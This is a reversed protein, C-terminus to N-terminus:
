PGIPGYIDILLRAMDIKNEDPILEPSGGLVIYRNEIAEFGFNIDRMNWHIWKYNKHTKVFDYFESLMDRELSDYESEINEFQINRREAIKHISFSKTQGTKFYMVAISTIRPTQGNPINYFSECSYHILLVNASNTYLDTFLDLARKRKKIKHNMFCKGESPIIPM